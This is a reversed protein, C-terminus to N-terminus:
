VEPAGDMLGAAQLAALLDNFDSVLGAVNEATSDAQYAAPTIAVAAVSAQLAEIDAKAQGFVKRLEVDPTSDARRILSIDITSTM